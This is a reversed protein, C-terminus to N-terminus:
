FIHHEERAAHPVASSSAEQTARSVAAVTQWNNRSATGAFFPPLAISLHRSLCEVYPEYLVRMENLRLQSAADRAVRTGAQCLLDHVQTFAGGPLRDERPQVPELDFVQSLDVVAHRAMAFTLQAQRGPLDQVTAVMLACTDLVACLAGLWSQNTHQSRFYCLLPYSIHSELLEASWREWEELLKVLAEGGGPFAHRRLLEAATPPSGARADLLSINVERRSFAGYLVPFYGIVVAVFGLGMGSEVVILERVLRSHPVVDGLGLTFLTTGSVYIDSRMDAHVPALPDAFPSGAGYFCLGFGLVLLLAWLVILLVLSLPGYFSLMTERRRGGRVLGAARRWPGWTSVYFLRTLRLSGSSRRPLIVTQFADLLVLVLCAVGAVAALVQMAELFAPTEGL